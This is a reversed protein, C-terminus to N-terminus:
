EYRLAQVPRLRAARRAPLVSAAVAIFLAGANVCVVTTWDLLVPIEKFYYIDRPFLEWGTWRTLFQEIPNIYNTFSVGFVCGLFCGILGLLLGFSLFVSMVGKDSAGLAKLIGIDRTKEVVIMFFIALIGFGAVAIIFFLIVNLIFAEIKVAQLLPGQKDEWTVVDFHVRPLVDKLAAVVSKAEAYTKLKIQISTAANGMKRIKQLQAIPMFVYKSDYESMDSKYTDVVVLRDDTPQPKNATVTTIIIEHGPRILYEDSRMSRERMTAIQYGLVAGAPDTKVDGPLLDSNEQRWQQADARMAFSPRAQNEPNTLHKAFDGIKARGEPDIGMLVIPRGYHKGRMNNQFHLMAFVEVAPTMAAIKDGCTEQIVAMVKEPNAFGDTTTSEVIVDSLIGYLRDRMKERFGGMVSNVVIMTAVGLLVSVVSVLGIYRTTAYRLCLLLKYM